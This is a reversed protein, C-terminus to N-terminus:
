WRISSFLFFLYELMLWRWYVSRIFTSWTKQDKVPSFPCHLGNWITKKPMSSFPSLDASAVFFLWDSYRNKNCVCMFWLISLVKIWLNINFKLWIGLVEQVSLAIFLISWTDERVAMITWQSNICQIFSCFPLM